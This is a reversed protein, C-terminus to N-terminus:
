FDVKELNLIRKSYFKKSYCDLVKVIKAQAGKGLEHLEIHEEYNIHYRRNQLYNMEVLNKNLKEYFVKSGPTYEPIIALIDDCKKQISLIIDSDKPLISYFSILESIKEEDSKKEDIQLAKDLPNDQIKIQSVFDVNNQHAEINESM